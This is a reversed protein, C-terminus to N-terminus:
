MPRRVLEERIQRVMVETATTNWEMAAERWAKPLDTLTKRTYAFGQWYDILAQSPNAPLFLIAAEAQLFEGEKEMATVFARGMTVRDVSPAILFDTVCIVLNEVRWGILGVTRKEQEALLFGVQSFREAVDLQTLLRAPRASNVFNAITEADSLRAKRMEVKMAM